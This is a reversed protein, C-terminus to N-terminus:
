LGYKRNSAVDIEDILSKNSVDEKTVSDILRVSLGLGQLEKVLVRFSEPIGPEPIPEGDVIAKYVKNRGIIDDSKITLMERLMHSAGYAELAWVEMEGFRQGGNQAKGGMPQQTVLTYPGESRAHLKDDVMHGYKEALARIGHDAYSNEDDSRGHLLYIVPFGPKGDSHPKEPVFVNMASRRKLSSSTFLTHMLAM